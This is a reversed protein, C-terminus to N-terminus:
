RGFHREQWDNITRAADAISTVTREEADTVDLLYVRPGDRGVALGSPVHGRLADFLAVARSEAADAGEAELARANEVLETWRRRAANTARDVLAELEERDLSPSSPELRLGGSWAPDWTEPWDRPSTGELAAAKEEAWRRGAASAERSRRPRMAIM